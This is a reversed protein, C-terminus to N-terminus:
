TTPVRVLGTKRMEALSIKDPATEPLGPGKERFAQM